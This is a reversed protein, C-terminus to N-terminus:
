GAVNVAVDIGIGIDLDDEYGIAQGHDAEGERHIVQRAPDRCKLSHNQARHDSRDRPQDEGQPRRDPARPKRQKHKREAFDNLSRTVVFVNRPESRGSLLASVHSERKQGDSDSRQDSAPKAARQNMVESFDSVLRLPDPPADSHDSEDRRYQQPNIVLRHPGAVLRTGWGLTTSKSTLTPWILLHRGFAFNRRAPDRTFDATQQLIASRGLM